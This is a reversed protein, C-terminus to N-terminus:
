REAQKNMPIMVADRMLNHLVADPVCYTSLLHQSNSYECETVWEVVNEFALLKCPPLETASITEVPFSLSAEQLSPRPSPAELGKNTFHTSIVDNTLLGAKRKRKKASPACLPHLSCLSRVGPNALDGAGGSRPSAEHFGAM